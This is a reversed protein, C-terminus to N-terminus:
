FSIFIILVNNITVFNESSSRKMRKGDSFVRLRSRNIQKRLKASSFAFYRHLALATALGCIGAGVIVIDLEEAADM